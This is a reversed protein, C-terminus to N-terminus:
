LTMTLASVCMVLGTAFRELIEGSCDAKESGGGSPGGLPEVGALDAGAPKAPVPDDPPALDEPPTLDDPPVKGSKGVSSKDRM